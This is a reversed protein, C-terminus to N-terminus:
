PHEFETYAFEQEALSLLLRADVVPDAQPVDGYIAWDNLKLAANLFRIDRARRAHRSFLIAVDLYQLVREVRDDVAPTFQSLCQVRKVEVHRLLTEFYRSIRQQSAHPTDCDLLDLMRGADKRVVSRVVLAERGLSSLWSRADELERTNEIVPKDTTVTTDDLGLLAAAQRIDSAARADLSDLQRSLRHYTNQVYQAIQERTHVKEIRSALAKLLSGIM